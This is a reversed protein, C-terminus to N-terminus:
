ITKSEDFGTIDLSRRYALGRDSWFLMYHLGFMALNQILSLFNAKVIKWQVDTVKHFTQIIATMPSNWVITLFDFNVFEDSFAGLILKMIEWFSPKPVEKQKEM